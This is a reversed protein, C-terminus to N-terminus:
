RKAAPACRLADNYENLEQAIEEKIESMVEDFDFHERTRTTVRFAMDLVARRINEKCRENLWGHDEKMM